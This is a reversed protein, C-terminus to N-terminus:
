MKVAMSAFDAVWKFMFSVAFQSDYKGAVVVVLITREVNRIDTTIPAMCRILAIIEKYRTNLNLFIMCRGGSMFGNSVLKVERLDVFCLCLFESIDVEDILPGVKILLM